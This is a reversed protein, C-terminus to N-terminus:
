EGRVAHVISIRAALRAPYAAALMAVAVSVLAVFVITAWPADAITSAPAGQVALLVTAVVLGAVIGLVAGVLGLIGAEVLVMRWAQSRLLGTARLIGIERVREMVNMALTNVIGLAAVIIAVIAIADFLGFLRGVAGEAQDRVAALTTPELA